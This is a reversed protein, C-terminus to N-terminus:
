GAELCQVTFQAFFQDGLVPTYNAIAVSGNATLTYNDSAEIEPLSFAVGGCDSAACASSSEVQGSSGALSIETFDWDQADGFPEGQSNYIVNDTTYQISEMGQAFVNLSGESSLEFRGTNPNLSLEVPVISDFRCLSPAQDVTLNWRHQETASHAVGAVSLAITASALVIKM